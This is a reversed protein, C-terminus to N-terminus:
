PRISGLSANIFMQAMVGAADKWSNGPLPAPKPTALARLMGQALSDPDPKTFIGSSGAAERLEPIDTAVVRTGFSAAEAAPMGFGEYHSPQVLLDAHAFMAAMREDPVYGLEHLWEPRTGHLAELRGGWGAAGALVLAHQPILGQAKLKSFAIVLSNLNKRPERTAVSLVYPKNVPREGVSNSDMGAWRSGPLAIGDVLRGVLENLRGATGQSIAVVLAASRVDNAFWRMYAFRNVGTMTEPVLLHNLDYVTSVVPVDVSPALTRAAWFTNLDDREALAGLRAKVWILGPLQRWLPHTDVVVHWRDTPWKLEMPRRVYLMWEANPLLENLCLLIERVYRGIGTINGTLCRADVGIRLRLDARGEDETSRNM